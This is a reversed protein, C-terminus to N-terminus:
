IWLRHNVQHQSCWAPCLNLMSLLTPLPHCVPTCISGNSATASLFTFFPSKTLLRHKSYTLTTPSDATEVSQPWFWHQKNPTAPKCQYISTCHSLPLAPYEHEPPCILFFWCVGVPQWAHTNQRQETSPILMFELQGLHVPIFVFM